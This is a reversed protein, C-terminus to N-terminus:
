FGRRADNWDCHNWRQDFYPSACKGADGEFPGGFASVPPRLVWQDLTAFGFGDHGILMNATCGNDACPSAWVWELGNHTVILSSPVPQGLTAGAAEASKPSFLGTAMIALLLGAVLAIVLTISAGRNNAILKTM